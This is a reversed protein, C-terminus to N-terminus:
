RLEHGLVVRNDDSEALSLISRDGPEETLAPLLRVVSVDRQFGWKKFKNKIKQTPTRQEYTQRDTYWM